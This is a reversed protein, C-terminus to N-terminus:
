TSASEQPIDQCEETFANSKKEKKGVEGVKEREGERGSARERKVKEL